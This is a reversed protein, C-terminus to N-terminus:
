KRKLRLSVYIIKQLCDPAGPYHGETIEQLMDLSGPYFMVFLGEKFLCAFVALEELLYGSSLEVYHDFNETNNDFQRLVFEKASSKVSNAFNEDQSIFNQLQEYYNFYDESKQVESCFIVNFLCTDTYNEFVERAKEVYERGLFLAKNLAHEEQLGQNIQLTIRHISDGILVTCKKFQKSIWDTIGVLKAISFSDNELSVGLFCYEHKDLEHRANKPIVAAIEARYKARTLFPIKNQPNLFNEFDSYKMRVLHAYSYVYYAVEQNKALDQGWFVEIDYLESYPPLTGFECDPFLNEFEKQNLLRTKNANLSKQLSEVNIRLSAPVLVIAIKQEDIKVLVAEILEMGLAQKYRTLEQATYAPSYCITQYKLQHSNLFERFQQISM